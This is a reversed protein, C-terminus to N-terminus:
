EPRAHQSQWVNIWDQTQILRNRTSFNSQKSAAWLSPADPPLIDSCEWGGHPVALVPIQFQYAWLAVSLDSEGPTFTHSHTLDVHRTDWGMVGTGPQHIWEKHMLPKDWRTQFSWGQSFRKQQFPRGNKVMTEFWIRKWHDANPKFRLGHTTCISDPYREIWHAMILPYQPEYKLDDDCSLYIGEHKGAWYLNGLDKAKNEPDFHIQDVLGETAYPPRLWEPTESYGNCYLCLVDVSPRLSRLAALALAGRDKMTVVAALVGTTSM